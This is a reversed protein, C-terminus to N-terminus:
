RSVKHRWGGGRFAQLYQISKLHVFQPQLLLMRCNSAQPQKMRCGPKIFQAVSGPNYSMGLPFFAQFFTDPSPVHLPIRPLAPHPTAPLFRLSTPLCIKPGQHCSNDQIAMALMVQPTVWAQPDLGARQPWPLGEHTETAM